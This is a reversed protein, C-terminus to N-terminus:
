RTSRQDRVKASASPFVDGWILWSFLLCATLCLFISLSLPLPPYRTCHLNYDLKNGLDKTENRKPELWNICIAFHRNENWSSSSWKMYNGRQTHKDPLPLDTRWDCDCDRAASDRERMSMGLMRRSAVAMLWFCRRLWLEVFLLSCSFVTLVTLLQQRRQYDRTATVKGAVHRRRRRRRGTQM